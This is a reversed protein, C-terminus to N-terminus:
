TTSCPDPLRGNTGLHIVVQEPLSLVNKYGNIIGVGQGPQRSVIADVAIGPITARLSPAAGLMVSDGIALVRGIHPKFVTTTTVGPKM